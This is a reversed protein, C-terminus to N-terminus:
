RLSTKHANEVELKSHHIVHGLYEGKEPFFTCTNMKLTVCAEALTTLIEDVHDILEKVLNSHM